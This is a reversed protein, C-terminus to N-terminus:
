SENTLKFSVNKLATTEGKNTKYVKTLNKVELIVDRNKLKEFRAKVEVSQDLYSPLSSKISADTM